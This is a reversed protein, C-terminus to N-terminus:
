LRQSSPGDLVPEALATLEAVSLNRIFWYGTICCEPFVVLQVQARVAQQVFAEIKSFNAPKDAPKSEMQVAAVRITRQDAPVIPNRLASNPTRISASESPPRTAGEPRNSNACVSIAGCSTSLSKATVSGM